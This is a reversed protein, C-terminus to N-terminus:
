KERVGKTMEKSPILSNLSLEGRDLLVSLTKFYVDNLM